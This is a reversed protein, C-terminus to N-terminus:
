CWCGDFQGQLGFQEGGIGLTSLGKAFGVGKSGM